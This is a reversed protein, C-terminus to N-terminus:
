PSPLSIAVATASMISNGSVKLVSYKTHANNFENYKGIGVQDVLIYAVHFNIAGQADGATLLNLLGIGWCMFTRSLLM